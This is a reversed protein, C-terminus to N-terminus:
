NQSLSVNNTRTTALFLCLRWFFIQSFFDLRNKFHLLLVFLVIQGLDRWMLYASKFLHLRHWNEALILGQACFDMNKHINKQWLM